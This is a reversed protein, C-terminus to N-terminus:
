VHRIGADLDESKTEAYNTSMVRQFMGRATLAAQDEADFELAIAAVREHEGQTVALVRLNELQKRTHPFALYELKAGAAVPGTLATM